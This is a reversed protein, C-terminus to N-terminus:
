RFLDLDEVRRFHGARDFLYLVISFYETYPPRGDGLPIDPLGTGLYGATNFVGVDPKGDIPGLAGDRLIATAFVGLFDDDPDDATLTTQIVSTGFLRANFSLAFPPSGARPALPAQAIESSNGFKDVVRIGVCAERLAADDLPVDFVGLVTISDRGGTRGGSLGGRVRGGDGLISRGSCNTLDWFYREIDRDPDVADLVFGTTGASYSARLGVVRPQSRPDSCAVRFAATVGGTAPISVTQEEGGDSVALCNEALHSLRVTHPGPAFGDLLVTDAARILGVRESGTPGRVRYVFEGDVQQGSSLNEIVLQAQCFVVFRLIATNTEAAIVTSQVSNGGQVRCKPPVNLIEVEYSAPPLSLVLTDTTAVALTTDIGLSLSRERVRYRYGGSVEIGEPAQTRTLVALYPPGERPEVELPQYDSCGGAVAVVVLGWQWRTVPGGGQRFARSRLLAM